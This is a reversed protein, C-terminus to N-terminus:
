KEQFFFFTPNISLPPLILSKGANNMMSRGTFSTGTDRVKTHLQEALHM